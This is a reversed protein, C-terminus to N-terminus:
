RCDAEPASQRRGPRWRVSPPSPRHSASIAAFGGGIRRFPLPLHGFIDPDGGLGLALASLLAPLGALEGPGLGLLEPQKVLVNTLERLVGTKGPLLRPQGSFVGSMGRLLGAAYGLLQPTEGLGAAM